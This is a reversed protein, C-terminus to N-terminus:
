KARRYDARMFEHWQGDPGITRSRLVRHDRSVIEIIDQYQTMKGDGAFSPGESSLTLVRHDADMQGDYIWLHTMMSGVWTGVYRQRQPDYGLTMLMKAPAGDPMEGQGECLVWLGGLSRVSETGTSKARPKDPGMDADGEMTWEGVLQRLWEHEKQPQAMM